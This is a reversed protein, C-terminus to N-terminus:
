GGRHVRKALMMSSPRRGAGYGLSFGLQRVNAPAHFAEALDPQYERRFPRDPRSYAGFLSVQWEANRFFRFPVGTDDQLVLNSNELIYERLGKCQRWHLLFSASKVLTDPTGQRQLFRSFSPNREFAPGLDFSFYYLTRSEPEPGRKFKIEVGPHRFTPDSADEGAFEGADSLHGYRVQEITHGGRALLLLIMPLLGDAVRGHFEQDMESTVFFSREFMSDVSVRWGHLQRDLTEAKYNEPPRLHGVRELGAFVFTRGEPFFHTAYLVDPGSLPYFVFNGHTQIPSLERKQFADVAQFQDKQVAKWTEDFEAAYTRWAETDELQHFPGDVRGKVGALFQATDNWFPTELTAPKRPREERRHSCAPTASLAIFSLLIAVTYTVRAARTAAIFRSM